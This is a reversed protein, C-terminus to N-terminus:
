HANNVQNTSTKEIQKSGTQTTTTNKPLAKPNAPSPILIVPEMWPTNMWASDFFREANLFDQDMMRYMSLSFRQMNNYVAEQQKRLRKYLKMAQQDTLKKGNKYAIVNLTPKGKTNPDVHVYLTQIDPRYYAARAKQYQVINLWGVQGNKPDGAKEWNGKRYIPVLRTNPSLRQIVKGKHPTAYLLIFDSQTAPQAHSQTSKKATLLSAALAVTIALSAVVGVFIM